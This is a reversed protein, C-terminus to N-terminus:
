TNHLNRKRIVWNTMTRQNHVNVTRIPEALEAGLRAQTALLMPLDPMFWEQGGPTIFRGGGLPRIDSEITHTTSLRAFLRGGPKLVRWLENVAAAFASEDPMFHLVAICLVADFSADAFTLRDLSAVAARDAPLLGHAVVANIAAPNADVAHVQYGNRAFWALNRGGGCGADLIASGAPFRGQLVQDLLYIDMGALEHILADADM